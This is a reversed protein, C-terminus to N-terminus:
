LREHCPLLTIEYGHYQLYLCNSSAEDCPISEVHIHLVSSIFWVIFVHTFSENAEFKTQDGLTLSSNNLFFTFFSAQNVLHDVFVNFIGLVSFTPFNAKFTKLM